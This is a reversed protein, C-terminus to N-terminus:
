KNVGSVKDGSSAWILAIVWGIFTWGLFINLVVIGAIRECGRYLGVVTPIFYFILGFVVFMFVSEDM